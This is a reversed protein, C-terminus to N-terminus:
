GKNLPSKLEILSFTMWRASWHLAKLLGVFGLSNLSTSSRSLRQTTRVWTPPKPNLKSRKDREIKTWFIRSSLGADSTPKVKCFCKRSGLSTVVLNTLVPIMWDRYTRHTSNASKQMLDLQLNIKRDKCLAEVDSLWQARKPCENKLRPRSNKSTLMKPLSLLDFKALWGSRFRAKWQDLEWDM